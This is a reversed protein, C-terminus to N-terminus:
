WYPIAEINRRVVRNTKEKTEAM